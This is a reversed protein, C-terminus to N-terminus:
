LLLQQQQQQQQPQQQQQQRPEAQQTAAARESDGVAITPSPPPPPFLVRQSPTEDAVPAAESSATAAILRSAKVSADRRPTARRSPEPTAEPSHPEDFIDDSDKDSDSTDLQALASSHRRGYVREGARPDDDCPGGGLQP